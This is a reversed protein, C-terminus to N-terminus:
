AHIHVSVCVQLEFTHMRASNACFLGNCAGDYAIQVTIRVQLEHTHVDASKAYDDRVYTIHAHAHVCVYTYM